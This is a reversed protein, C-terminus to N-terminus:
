PLSFGADSLLRASSSGVEMFKSFGSSMKDSLFALGVFLSFFQAAITTSELINLNKRDFPYAYMHALLAALLVLMGFLLQRLGNTKTEASFLATCLVVFLQLVCCLEALHGTSPEGADAPLDM